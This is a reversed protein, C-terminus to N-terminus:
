AYITAANTPDIAAYGGDGCTVDNWKATGTYLVTGNDQTGGIALNKNGAAITLGPYFQTLSLTNNLGTFNPSAAKIQSTRYAGGDNGVYLLSGDASFTIAHVDAHMFGGNQATQLTSWNTGGDLTRILTTAYAGGAYLIGPSKPDVALVNDYSCQPDCYDPANTNSWSKGGNTSKYVGVLSGDNVNAISAYLTQPQSPAMALVLRGANVLPLAHAGSGNRAAWTVGGDTSIFVGETGGSFSNGLAAYATNGNTPDFIVATGPNGGLVQTWSQGADETRYIGDAFNLAVAALLVQSNGPQIALGGIRAGGGYYGDPGVPGCFPGCYQTWTTGGDTSKLVGAGYYSDGSFNEEGTGVYITGPNATDLLISGTALSAQADTLASWSKGGNISEWIGGQAGGLYIHDPNTPDVAMASVRGSVVPDTYPTDIPQPGLPKWTLSKPTLGRAAEDARMHDLAGLAALRVGGPIRAHPYARQGYFWAERQQQLDAEEPEQRGPPAAAALSPVAALLVALIHFPRM